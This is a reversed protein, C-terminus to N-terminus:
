YVCTMILDLVVLKGTSDTILSRGTEYQDGGWFRSWELIAPDSTSLGDEVSKNQFIENDSVNYFVSSLSLLIFLSLLFTIPKKMIM